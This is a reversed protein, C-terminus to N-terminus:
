NSIVMQWFFIGLAEARLGSPGLTKYQLCINLLPLVCTWVTLEYIEIINRVFKIKDCYSFIVKCEVLGYEVLYRETPGLGM